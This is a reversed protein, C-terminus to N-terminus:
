GFRKRKPNRKLKINGIFAGFICFCVTAIHLFASEFFTRSTPKANFLLLSTILMVSTVAAGCVLGCTLPSGNALRSTVLGGVFNSILLVAISLPIVLSTPDSSSYAAACVATTMIVASALASLLGFLSSQLVTRICPKDDNPQSKVTLESRSHPIPMNSSYRSRKM